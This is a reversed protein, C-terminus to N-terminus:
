FFLYIVFINFLNKKNKEKEKEDNIITKSINTKSMIIHKM